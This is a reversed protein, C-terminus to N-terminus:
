QFDGPGRGKHGRHTSSFAELRKLTAEIGCGLTMVQGTSNAQGPRLCNILRFELPDFRLKEALEDIQTEHIVAAQVVGFGRCAGSIPNNTYVSFSDAKYNPYYYPGGLHLATRKIVYAGLSAYAGTDGYVVGELATLKGERSAGTRVRAIVPHRHTQTLMAQHRSYILKVPRGTAKVLLALYIEVSIDDKRGFGGGVTPCIVRIRNVPMNVVRAVQYRTRFVGQSPTCITISGDPELWAIGNETELAAHDQGPLHYVNEVVVDAEDFGKKYNGKRVKTHFLLNGMDHVSPAGSELATIPDFVAPLPQYEVKIRNVAEEAISPEDAAVIAIVEGFFRVKQGALVQQDAVALGYTNTGPIDKATLIAKVGRLKKAARTDIDCILGHPISSHLVQGFLMDPKYMDAAYIATGTVKVASDERVVSKGVPDMTLKAPTSAFNLDALKNKLTV